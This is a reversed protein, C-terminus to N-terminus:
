AMPCSVWVVYHQLPISLLSRKSNAPLASLPCWLYTSFFVNQRGVDRRVQRAAEMFPLSEIDGVTGGIETIIIDPANEIEAAYRMRAKIEDTIHPIVQVTDGLYEGRREKAIVTSYVQGTTVNASQDLNEDLFREYHGIDLDTEAGDDTVFVEGHQFPNMTGPDVNLYPDFKQMTVSLGRSRLIQGLSSASLGKGLSSAVGGTVFIQRTVKGNASANLANNNENVVSNLSVMKKEGIWYFVLPRSSKEERSKILEKGYKACNKRWLLRKM